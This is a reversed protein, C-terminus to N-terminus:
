LTVCVCSSLTNDLPLPYPFVPLLPIWTNFLPAPSHPLTPSCVCSGGYPATTVPTTGLLSEQGRASGSVATDGLKHVDVPAKIQILLDYRPSVCLVPFRHQISPVGFLSLCPCVSVLFHSPLIRPRPCFASTTEPSQVLRSPRPCAPDTIPLWILRLFAPSDQM